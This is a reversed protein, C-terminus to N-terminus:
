RSFDTDFGYLSALGRELIRTRSPAVLAREASDIAGSRRLSDVRRFFLDTNRSSMNLASGDSTFYRGVLRALASDVSTRAIDSAAVVRLKAWAYEELSRGRENLYAVLARKTAPEILTVARYFSPSTLISGIGSDGSSRGARTMSDLTTRVALLAGGTADLGEVYLGVWTADLRTGDPPAPSRSTVLTAVSDRTTYRELEEPVDFAGAFHRYGFYGAIGIAIVLLATVLVCGSPVVNSRSVPTRDSPAM